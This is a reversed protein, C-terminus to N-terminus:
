EDNIRDLPLDLFEEMEHFLKRVADPLIEHRMIRGDEWSRILGAERLIRAHISVTPRSLGLYAAMDTNTMSLARIMRLIILRTPDALAQVQHTLKHSYLLFNEYMKGPEAFSLYIQDPLLVWNDAFGFPELWYNVFVAGSQIASKLEPYRLTPNAASLWQIDSIKGTSQSAGLVTILKQELGDMFNQRDKRWPHYVEYYFRDLWHWFKDHLPGNQFITFCLQLERVLRNKFLPDVPHTLGTSEFAASRFEYFLKSITEELSLGVDPSLDLDGALRKLRKLAEDLTTQRIAMTAKEYDSEELVGALIAAHEMCSGYWTMDEYFTAYEVKWSEPVAEALANFEPTLRAAIFREGAITLAADLEMCISQIIKWGAQNESTKQSM